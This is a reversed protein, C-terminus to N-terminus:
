ANKSMYTRLAKERALALRIKAHDSIDDIGFAPKTLRPRVYGVQLDIDDYDDDSDDDAQLLNAAKLAIRQARPMARVLANRTVTVKRLVSHPRFESITSANTKEQSLILLFIGVILLQAFTKM